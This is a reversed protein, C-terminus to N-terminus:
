ALARMRDQLPVETKMVLWTADLLMYGSVVALGVVV